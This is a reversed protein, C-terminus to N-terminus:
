FYTGEEDFTALILYSVLLQIIKPQATCTKAASAGDKMGDGPPGPPLKPEAM